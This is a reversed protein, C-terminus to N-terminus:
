APRMAVPARDDPQVRRQKFLDWISFTAKRYAKNYLKKKPRLWDRGRKGYGPVVAHKVERTTKGRMRAAISKMIGPKRM